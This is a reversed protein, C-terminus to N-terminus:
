DMKQLAVALGAVAIDAERRPSCALLGVVQFESLGAVRRLYGESHRWRRKPGLAYEAETEAEVTFLFHGGSKLKSHLSRFLPALDGLYVLTDAAIALDYSNALPISEIDVVELADYIGRTRAKEIMAPSLDIGDLRRALTRFEVGVLGTGCGLDLIDLSHPVTEPMVMDTLERLIRPASYALQGLMRGDYDASFQDFLHRVYQPNSRPATRMTEAQTIRASIEAPADQPDIASFSQLAKDPEGAELWALGLQYRAESLAPDIRLARQIEAIAAPLLGAKLLAEGLGLAAAATASFLLSTERAIELSAALDNAAALARALQLRALLGGRGSEILPRLVEVAEAARDEALLSRAYEIPDPDTPSPVSAM